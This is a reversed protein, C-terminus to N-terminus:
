SNNDAVSRCFLIFDRNGMNSKADNVRWCVWQVNGEEYGKEPDIRDVSAASWGSGILGLPAGSLACRGDQQEWLRTLYKTTLSFALSKAKANKRCYARKNSITGKFTRRHRYQLEALTFAPRTPDILSAM